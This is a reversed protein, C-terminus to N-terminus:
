VVFVVATRYEIRIRLFDSLLRMMVRVVREM